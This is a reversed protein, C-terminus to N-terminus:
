NIDYNFADLIHGAWRMKRSKIVKIINFFCYMDHLEEHFKRWGETVYERKPQPWVPHSNMRSSAARIRLTQEYANTRGPHECQVRICAILKVRVTSQLITM